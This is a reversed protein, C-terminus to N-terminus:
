SSFYLEYEYPTPRSAVEGAEARKDALWRDILEQTFVDGNRLFAHDAALADLAADLSRPLKQLRHLETSSLEQVNKDLPDGPEIRSEIGDLGAMLMAAFALYPNASGDPPRFEVRTGTPSPQASPIRAVASASRVSYTLHAPSEGAAFRRFSNTTPTCFALLAPAHHLLGGIYYRATQSLGAYGNSDFFTPLDSRWLSQHTAMGSGPEGYIPKPMFTAVKGRTRAVNRALYKYWQVEDAKRVLPLQRLAIEAQGASAAERRESQVTAGVATLAEVLAWRLDAHADFPPTQLYGAGAALKAGLNPTEERGTNWAGEEADVFYFASHSGQQYRVDDFVFFQLSTGFFATDAIGTTRLHTEAKEAVYRPDRAFREQSAPDVLMCVISLTPLSAVPDMVATALDPVFALEAGRASSGELAGLDAGVGQELLSTTLQAIPVTVHQWRGRLDTARLDVRQAGRSDALQRVEQLTAM